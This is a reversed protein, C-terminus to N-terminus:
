EKKAEPKTELEKIKANAAALQKQLDDILKGQQVLTQAWAGVVGNIQLATEPPTLQQQQAMASTMWLLFVILYKLM